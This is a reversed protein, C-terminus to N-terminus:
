KLKKLVRYAVGVINLRELEIDSMEDNEPHLIFRKKKECRFFRKLTARPEGTEEDEILAVVIDGDDATNQRKVYVVDGETIGIGKMSDGECVLGFFDEGYLEPDLPLYGLVDELALTPKGCAVCGIVPMSAYPASVRESSRLGYRKPKEVFGEDILRNVYKSVTSKSLSLKESIESTTPSVGYEKMYSLIYEYIDMKRKDNKPNM